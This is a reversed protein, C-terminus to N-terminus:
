KGICFERFIRDLIDDEVSEGIILGLRHLSENLDSALLEGNYDKGTLKMARAIAKYADELLAKHRMNTVIPGEPMKVEGNFLKEAIADEVNELGKKKLASIELIEEDSFSKKAEDIDLEIKLDTKNAVTVIRKDRLAGYIEKDKDSLSLSGDLMFIVIDACELKEKSRKIGEAEVRDQTEIIGATDSVHVKVGRINIAEEIIDRTTGAVPTVIVREDRLLANMLSSKGVNPRGCIVVSAGERLIMGKDASKVMEDIAHSVDEIRKTIDKAKAFEVDEDSFDIGLEISSLIDIISSRLIRIKSSVEGRLQGVAIRRSTDTESRIIDLVAEAQSLDMRGNLFARKTFEGPEALRAGESLCIELVRKSPMTGGHCNIEVVDEATYTKPGRMVTLLVEDVIEGSQPSKIYGRRLTYSACSSPKKGSPSDFIKDALAISDSGSIRVVAIGGEGLPTSIATITENNM